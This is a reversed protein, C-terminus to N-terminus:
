GIEGLRILWLVLGFTSGRFARVDGDEGGAGNECASKCTGQANGDGGGDGGGKGDNRFVADGITDVIWVDALLERGLGQVSEYRGRQHVKQCCTGRRIKTSPDAFFCANQKPFRDTCPCHPPLHPHANPCLDHPVDRICTAPSQAILAYSRADRTRKKKQSRERLKTKSNGAGELRHM